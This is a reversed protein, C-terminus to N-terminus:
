KTPHGVSGLVAEDWDHAKNTAKVQCWNPFSLCCYKYPSHMSFHCLQVKLDGSCSPTFIPYRYLLLYVREFRSVFPRSILFKGLIKSWMYLSIHTLWMIRNQNFLFLCCRNSEFDLATHTLSLFLLYSYQTRLAPNVSLSEPTWKFNNSLVECCILCM